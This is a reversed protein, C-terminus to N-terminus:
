CRKAMIITSWPGCNLECDSKYTLSKKFYVVKQYIKQTGLGLQGYKNNGSTWISKDELLIATHRNGCAVDLINLQNKRGDDDYIDVLTPLGFSQVNQSGEKVGLQGMDNWGWVYLDGYESIACSHWGGASIKIIRIGTLAKVETPIELNNM